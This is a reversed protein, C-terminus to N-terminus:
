AAKRRRVLNAAFVLIGMITISLPWFYDHHLQGGTEALWLAGMVTMAIGCFVSRAFMWLGFFTLVIPGMYEGPFWGITAALWLLGVM